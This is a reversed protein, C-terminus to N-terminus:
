EPARDGPQEGPQAKNVPLPELIAIVQEIQVPKVWYDAAGYDLIRARAHESPQATMAVIRVGDLEPIRRLRRCVEFGDLGEMYIDLLVLDPPEAGIRVLAEIGDTCGAVEYPGGHKEFARQIYRLVAPEDDVVFIRKSQARTRLTPPLPMNTSAVFRRIDGVKIRRHGGPTRFAPLRGRNIWDVVTSPSVGLMHSVQHSSLCLEDDEFGIDSYSNKCFKSGSRLLSELEGSDVLKDLRGVTAVVRQQSKGDVWTNEVLQIYDRAGSRKNRFFM